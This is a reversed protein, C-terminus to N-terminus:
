LLPQKMIRLADKDDALALLGRISRDITMRPNIYARASSATSIPRNIYPQRPAVPPGLSWLDRPAASPGRCRCCATKKSGLSENRNKNLQELFSSATPAECDNNVTTKM